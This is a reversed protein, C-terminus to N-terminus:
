TLSFGPTPGVTHAHATGEGRGADNTPQEEGISGAIVM